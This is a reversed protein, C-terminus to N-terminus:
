SSYTMPAALESFLACAKAWHWPAGSLAFQDVMGKAVSSQPRLESRRPCHDAQGRPSEVELM